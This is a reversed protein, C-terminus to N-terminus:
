HKLHSLRVLRGDQAKNVNNSYTSEWLQKGSHQQTQVLHQANAGPSSSSVATPTLLSKVSIVTSVAASPTEFFSFVSVTMVSETTRRDLSKARRLPPLTSPFDLGQDVDHRKEQVVCVCITAHNIGSILVCFFQLFEASVGM